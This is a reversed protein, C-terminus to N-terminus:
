IELEDIVKDIDREIFDIFKKTASSAHERSRVALVIDRFFQPETPRSVIDFSSKALILEGMFGM